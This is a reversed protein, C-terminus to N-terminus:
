SAKFDYSLNIEIYRHKEGLGILLKGFPKENLCQDCVEYETWCTSRSDGTKVNKSNNTENGCVDCYYKTTM